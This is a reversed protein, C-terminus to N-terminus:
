QRVDVLKATVLQRHDYYPRNSCTVLVISHTGADYLKLESEHLVESKVAQYIFEQDGTYLFVYVPDGDRLYDAVEPLNHFVNGESKIPSELHGFYWGTVSDLMNPDTPIRGVVNIPTEYEKRGNKEIVELQEVNSDVKIAPIRISIAKGSFDEPLMEGIKGNSSFDLPKKMQEDSESWRPDAWDRPHMGSVFNDSSYGNLLKDINGVNPPQGNAEKTEINELDQVQTKYDFKQALPTAKTPIDEIHKKPSIPTPKIEQASILDRETLTNSVVIPIVPTSVPISSTVNLKDLQSSSHLGLAYLSISVILLLAGVIGLTIALLKFKREKM